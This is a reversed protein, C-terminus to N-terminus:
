DETISELSLSCTERSMNGSYNVTGQWDASNGVFRVPIEGTWEGGDPNIALTLNIGSRKGKLYESDVTSGDGIAFGTFYGEESNGKFIDVRGPYAIVGDRIRAFVQGDCLMKGPLAYVELSGVPVVNGVVVKDGIASINNISTLPTFQGAYSAASTGLLLLAAISKLRNM